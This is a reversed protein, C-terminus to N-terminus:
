SILKGPKLKKESKERVDNNIPKYHMSFYYGLIM